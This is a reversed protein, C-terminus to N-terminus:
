GSAGAQMRQDLAQFKQVLNSLRQNMQAVPETVKDIAKVVIQKEAIIATM